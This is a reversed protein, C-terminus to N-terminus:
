RHYHPPPPPRKRPANNLRRRRRRIIIRGQAMWSSDAVEVEIRSVMILPGHSTYGTVDTTGAENAVKYYSGVNTVSSRAGLNDNLNNVFSAALVLRKTNDLAFNLADSVVSDGQPISFSGATAVTVQVQNGDFDYDDGAGGHGIYMANVAGNETGSPAGTLTLRIRSGSVSLGAAAIVCRVTYGNWGSDLANLTQAPFTDVWAM